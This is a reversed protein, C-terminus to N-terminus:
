FEVGQIIAFVDLYQELYRLILKPLASEGQLSGSLQLLVLCLLLRGGM